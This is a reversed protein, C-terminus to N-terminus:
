RNFTIPIAFSYRADTLGNPAAPFSGARRAAAVAAQDLTANGSSRSVRIGALGGGRTV